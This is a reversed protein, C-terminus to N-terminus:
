GHQSARRATARTPAKSAAGHRGVYDRRGVIPATHADDWHSSAEALVRRTWPGAVAVYGALGVAAGIILELWSSHLLRTTAWALLGAVLAGIFPRVMARLLLPLPGAGARSVVVLSAPVVTVIAVVEQAVAAGVIGHTKVGVIIAPILGAIWLLQLWLVARSRGIAILINTLLTILIRMSGFVGLWALAGAAASWRHGYVSLVLPHALALCLASVPLAAAATISLAGATRRPLADAASHAQTFAPLAVENIMLGFVSVPWGSINYALVYLGLAIPGLLHGVVIYDVNGLLFTVLSAGALPLSYDLIPGVLRRNWGPRYRPAIILTLIVLSVLQGAVYSLALGTAGWGALGLGIVVITSVLLNSGDAIFRKDQRFNRMLLAYPVASLGALLVTASMIRIPGTAGPAGLASAIPGATFFMLATLIVSSAIALTAVTPAMTGPDDKTRVLSTTVGLESVNVVIAHVTLAVAFVGFEHPAFIHATAIGVLFQGLRLAFSNLGSWLAAKRMRVSLPAQAKEAVEESAEEVAAAFPVTIETEDFIDFDTFSM